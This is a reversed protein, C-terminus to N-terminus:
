IKYNQHYRRTQSKQRAARRSGMKPFIALSPLYFHLGSL